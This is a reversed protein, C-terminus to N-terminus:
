PQPAKRRIAAPPDRKDDFFVAVPRRALPLDGYRGRQRGGARQERRFSVRRGALVNRYELVRIGSALTGLAEIRGSRDVKYPSSHDAYAFWWGSWSSPLTELYVDLGKGYFWGYAKWAGDTDAYLYVYFWTM